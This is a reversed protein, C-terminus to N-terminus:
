PPLGFAPADNVQEDQVFVGGRDDVVLRALLLVVLRLQFKETPEHHVVVVGLREDLRHLASEKPQFVIRRRPDFQVIKRGLEYHILHQGPDLRHFPCPIRFVEGTERGAQAIAPTRHRLADVKLFPLHPPSFM